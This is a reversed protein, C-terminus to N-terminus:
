KVLEFIFKSHRHHVFFILLMLFSCLFPYVATQVRLIRLIKSSLYFDLIEIYSHKLPLLRTPLQTLPNSKFCNQMALLIRNIQYCPPHQHFNLSIHWVEGLLKKTRWRLLFVASLAMLFIFHM